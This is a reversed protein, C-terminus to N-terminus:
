KPGLYVNSQARRVCAGSNVRCNGRRQMAITVTLSLVRPYLGMKGHERTLVTHVRNFAIFQRLEQANFTM